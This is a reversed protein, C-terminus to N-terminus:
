SNWKTIKQLLFFDLLTCAAMAIVVPVARIAICPDHRGSISIEVNKNDSSISKQNLSISSTPKFAINMKITEGNSIGGQIGGSNNTTTSIKNNVFQFHDNHESGKKSICDFGSGIEFGKVGNISFMAQALRASLKDYVPEGLGVPVGYCFCTLRGGVSDGSLKIHELLKVMEKESDEFPCFVPSNFIESQNKFETTPSIITGIQSVYAVIEINLTKLIQKAISGAVIRIAMERASSRGGGRYDRIGYKIFTTYDAHSPRFINKISEYDNSNCDINAITFGIPTGLTKGQYLGSLINLKDPEKRESTYESHGPRRFNLSQQIEEMNIDIGAPIGEIIGGIAAGHSEGFSSFKYVRGSSNM